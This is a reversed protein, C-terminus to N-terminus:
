ARPPRARRRAGGAPREQAPVLYLRRHESRSEPRRSRDEPPSAPRLCRCRSTHSTRGSPLRRPWTSPASAPAPPSTPSPGAVRVTRHEGRTSLLGAERARRLMGAAREELRACSRLARADMHGNHAVGHGRLSRRQRERAQTVLERARASSITRGPQERGSPARRLNVLLDVRDLLPGSLRRRHRALDAESCRCRELEGAFGCPCPNTAAVLM